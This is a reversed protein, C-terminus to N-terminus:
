IHILNRLLNNCTIKRWQQHHKTGSALTSHQHVTYVCHVM